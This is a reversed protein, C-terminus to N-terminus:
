ELTPVFRDLDTWDLSDLDARLEKALDKFQKQTLKKRMPRWRRRPGQGDKPETGLSPFERDYTENTKSDM